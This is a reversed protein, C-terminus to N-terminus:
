ATSARAAELVGHPEARSDTSKARCAFVCAGVCVFDPVGVLVGVRVPLLARVCVCVCECLHVSARRVLPASVYSVTPAAVGHLRPCLIDAVLADFRRGDVRQLRLAFSRSSNAAKRITRTADLSHPTENPPCYTIGFLLM